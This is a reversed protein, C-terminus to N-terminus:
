RPGCLRGRLTTTQWFCHPVTHVGSGVSGGPWWQFGQRVTDGRLTDGCADSAGHTDPSWLAGRSWIIGIHADGIHGDSPSPSPWESVSTPAAQDQTWLPVAERCLRCIRLSPGRGEPSWGVWNAGPQLPEQTLVGLKLALTLQSGVGCRLIAWRAAEGARGRAKMGNLQTATM